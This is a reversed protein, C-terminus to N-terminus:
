CFLSDKRQLLVIQCGEIKSEASTFKRAHLFESMESIAWKYLEHGRLIFFLFVCFEFRDGAGFNTDRGSLNFRVYIVVHLLTDNMHSAARAFPSVCVSVCESPQPFSLHERKSPEINVTGQSESSLSAAGSNEMTIPPSNERVCSMLGASM